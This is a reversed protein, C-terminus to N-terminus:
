ARAAKTVATVMLAIVGAILDADASHVDIGAGVAYGDALAPRVRLHAEEDLTDIVLFANDGVNVVLAYPRRTTDFVTRASRDFLARHDAGNRDLISEAIALTTTPTTTSM